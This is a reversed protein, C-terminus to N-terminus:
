RTAREQILTRLIYQIDIYAPCGPKKHLHLCELCDEPTAFADFWHFAAQVDSVSRNVFRSIWFGFNPVKIDFNPGGNPYLHRGINISFPPANAGTLSVRFSPLIWLQSSGKVILDIEERKWANSRSWEYAGSKEFGEKRLLEGLTAVLTKLARKQTDAGFM